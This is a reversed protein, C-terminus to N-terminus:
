CNLSASIVEMDAKIGALNVKCGTAANIAIIAAAKIAPVGGPLRGSLRIAQVLNERRYVDFRVGSVEQAVPEAGIFYPSPSSCASLFVVFTLALGRRFVM